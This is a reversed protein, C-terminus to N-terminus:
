GAFDLDYAQRGAAPATRRYPGCTEVAHIAQAEAARRPGDVRAFAPRIPQPQGIVEGSPDLVVELKVAVPRPPSKWCADAQSRIEAGAAGATVPRAFSAHAWVDNDAQPGAHAPAGRAGAPASQAQAKGGGFLSELDSRPRNGPGAPASPADATLSRSISQLPAFRDAKAKEAGAGSTIVTVAVSGSAGGADRPSRAAWGILLAAALGHIAISGAIRAAQRPAERSASAPRPLGIAITLPRDIAGVEDM